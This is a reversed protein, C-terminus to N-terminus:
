QRSQIGKAGSPGPLGAPLIGKDELLNQLRQAGGLLEKDSTLDPHLAWVRSMIESSVDLKVFDPTSIPTKTLLLHWLPQLASAPISFNLKPLSRNANSDRANSTVLGLM